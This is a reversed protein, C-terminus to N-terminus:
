LHRASTATWRDLGEDDVELLDLRCLRDRRRHRGRPAGGRLRACAQSAPQGCAPYGPQPPRDDGRGAPRHEGGLIGASRMVIQALDAADYLDLRHTVGFRDRLPTTLLGARTTAGILTFDPLNRTVIAAGAGSGVTIPLKHDEMAPYFTEELAPPLRHIEDVFFV